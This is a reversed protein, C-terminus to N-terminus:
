LQEIQGNKYVLFAQGNNYIINERPFVKKIENIDIKSGVWEVSAVKANNFGSYMSSLHLSFAKAYAPLKKNILDITEQINHQHSTFTISVDGIMAQNSPIFVAVSEQQLTTALDSALSFIENQSFNQLPSTYFIETNDGTINKDSVMEYTGLINEFKGQEVHHKQLVDIVSANLEHQAKNILRSYAKELPIEQTNNSVFFEVSPSNAAYSTNIVLIVNAIGLMINLKSIKM